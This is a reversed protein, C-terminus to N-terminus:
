PKGSLDQQLCQLGTYLKGQREKGGFFSSGSAADVGDPTGKSLIRNVVKKKAINLFQDNDEDDGETVVINNVATIKDSEIVVDMKLVYEDFMYDEDPKCSVTVTYTGDRYLTKPTDETSATEETKDATTSEPKQLDDGSGQKTSDESESTSEPTDEKKETTGDTKQEKDSDEKKETTAQSNKKAKNLAQDIASLIGESSYTAGSVVDISTNQRSIVEPLLKTKAKSFYPDDDERSVITIDTIKGGKITVEVVTDGEFGEGTGRYTGDTYSANDSSGQSSHTTKKETTKEAAKETKKKSDKTKSKGSTSGKAKALANKVAGIIGKSSYTAGSVTDVNTSQKNIITSILSKARNLYSSTEGSASLIRIDTIKGKKITVSVKIQGGFGRASGTYTGDKYTSDEKVKSVSPARGKESPISSPTTQTSVTGYLANEVAAIIGGSSYTAGSVVDVKTSQATIISDIVGKARSFFPETEGPASVIDIAEINKGQVTVDVTITGGFGRASGRYVGDALDVGGADEEATGTEDGSSDEATSEASLKLKDWNIDSAAVQKQDIESSDYGALGAAVLVAIFIAPAMLKCNGGLHGATLIIRKLFTKM